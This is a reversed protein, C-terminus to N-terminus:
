VEGRKFAAWDRADSVPGVAARVADLKGIADRRQIPTLMGQANVLRPLSREVDTLITRLRRADPAALRGARARNQVETRLVRAQSMTVALVDGDFALGDPTSRATYGTNRVLRALAAEPTFQGRLAPAPRDAVIGPDAHVPCGTRRSLAQMAADLRQAPLDFAIPARKCAAFSPSAALSAAGAALLAAARPITMM